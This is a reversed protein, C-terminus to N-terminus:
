PLVCALRLGHCAKQQRCLWLPLLAGRVQQASSLCRRGNGLSQKAASSHKARQKDAHSFSLGDKNETYFSTSSRCGKVRSFVMGFFGVFFL